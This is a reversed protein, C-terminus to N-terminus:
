SILHPARSHIIHYFIYIEVIAKYEKYQAYPGAQHNLQM